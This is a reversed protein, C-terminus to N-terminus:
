YVSMHSLHQPFFHLQQTMMPEPIFHLSLIHATKIHTEWKGLEEKLLFFCVFFFKFYKLHVYYNHQYLLLGM